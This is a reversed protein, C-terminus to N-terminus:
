ADGDPEGASDDRAEALVRRRRNRIRTHWPMLFALGFYLYGALGILRDPVTLAIVTSILGFGGVISWAQIETRTDFRELSNLRLRDAVALAHRNLLTLTGISVFWGISYVLFIGRAQEYSELQLEAPVWGGTLAHMSAAMMARVPYVYVMIIFVLVMTLVTSWADELGYRQSWARHAVWFMVIIAFSAAFAPASKLAGILQDYTSPIEDFSIVLLTLAFAFAADAFTELRSMEAGRLRFGRQVPLADLDATSKM